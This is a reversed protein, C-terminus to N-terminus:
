SAPEAYQMVLNQVTLTYITNEVTIYANSPINLTGYNQVTPNASPGILTQGAPLTVEDASELTLKMPLGKQASKMQADTLTGEGHLYSEIHEHLTRERGAAIKSIDAERAARVAPDPHRTLNRVEEMTNVTVTSKQYGRRKLETRSHGLQEAHALFKENQEATM